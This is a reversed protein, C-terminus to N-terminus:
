PLQTVSYPRFKQLLGRIHDTHAEDFSHILLFGERKDSESPRGLWALMEEGSVAIVEEDWLGMRRLARAAEHAKDLTPFVALVCHRVDTGKLFTGLPTM